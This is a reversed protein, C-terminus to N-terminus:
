SKRKGFIIMGKPKSKMFNLKMSDFILGDKGLEDEILGIRMERLESIGEETSGKQRSTWRVRFFHIQSEKVREM